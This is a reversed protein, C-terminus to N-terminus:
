SIVMKGPKHKMKPSTKKTRTVRPKPKPEPEVEPEPEPEPEDDVSSEVVSSEDGSFELDETEYPEKYKEYFHQILTTKGNNSEGVIM